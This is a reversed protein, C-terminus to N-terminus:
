QDLQTKQSRARRTDPPPVPDQEQAAKPASQVAKKLARALDDPRGERALTDLREVTWALDEQSGLVPSVVERIV